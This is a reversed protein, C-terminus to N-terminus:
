RAWGPDGGAKRLDDEADDIAQKDADIEKQKAAIDDTKKQIDGRSYGQQMAKVPDDYNQLNLVGLERQMVALESTDQDLKQRLKAFKSRWDAEKAGSSGAGAAATEASTDAPKVGVTSVGGGTPLNENTFVRAPKASQNQAKQEKAKRAAAALPDEQAPAASSASAGSQGASPSAATQAIAACPLAILAGIAAFHAIKRM